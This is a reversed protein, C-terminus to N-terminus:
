LCEICICALAHQTAPASYHRRAALVCGPIGCIPSRGALRTRGVCTYFLGLNLLTSAASDCLAPLGFVWFSRRLRHDRATAEEASLPTARTAAKYWRRLAFPVLCLSEGLFMAASQLARYSTPPPPVAGISPLIAPWRRQRLLMPSGARWREELLLCAASAAHSVQFLPHRFRVPKGQEDTGVVVNDQLKTM